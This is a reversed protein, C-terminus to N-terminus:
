DKEQVLKKLNINLEHSQLRSGSTFERDDDSSVDGDLELEGALAVYDVKKRRRHGFGRPSNLDLETSNMMGLIADDDDDDDDDDDEDDTDFDSGSDSDEEEEEKEEVDEKTETDVVDGTVVRLAEVAARRKPPRKRSVDGAYRRSERGHACDDCLDYM